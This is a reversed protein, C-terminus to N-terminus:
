RGLLKVTLFIGLLISFLSKLFYKFIWLLVIWLLWFTSVVWMDLFQHIALGFTTWGCLPINNLWMFPIFEHYLSCCLHVKFVNHRTFSALCLLGHIIGNTRFTWFLCVLLSLICVPSELPRLLPFRSAVAWRICLKGRPHRFYKPAQYLHHNCLITFTSFPM